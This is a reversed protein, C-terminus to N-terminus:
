ETTTTPPTPVSFSSNHDDGGVMGGVSTNLLYSTLSVDQPTSCDQPSMSPRGHSPGSTLWAQSIITSSTAPPPTPAPVSSSSPAASVLPQPSPGSPTAFMRAAPSSSHQAFMQAAPSSSHQAFMQAAPSSSHQHHPFMQVPPGSSSATPAPLVFQQQHQQPVPPLFHHYQQQQQLQQQQQQQQQQQRKRRYAQKFQMLNNLTQAQYDWWTDTDMQMVEHYIMDTFVRKSLSGSDTPQSLKSHM